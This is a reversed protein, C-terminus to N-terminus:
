HAAFTVRAPVPKFEGMRSWWPMLLFFGLYALTLVQSIVNRTNEPPLTGFAGLILFIVAFALLLVLHWVPRYRISRVPSQDLWPLGFFIMVSVGMLVV